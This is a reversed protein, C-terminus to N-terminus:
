CPPRSGFRGTPSSSVAGSTAAQLASPPRARSGGRPQGLAVARDPAPLRGPVPPSGARPRAPTSARRAARSGPVVPLRTIDLRRHLPTGAPQARHASRCGRGPGFTRRCSRGARGRIRRCAASSIAVPGGTTSAPVVIDHRAPCRDSGTRCQSRAPGPRPARQRQQAAACPSGVRQPGQMRPDARCTRPGDASSIPRPHRAAARGDAPSGSRRGRRAAAPISRSARASGLRAIM